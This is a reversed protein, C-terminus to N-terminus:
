RGHNEHYGFEVKAANYAKAAENEDDFYGLHKEKGQHNIRARFKGKHFDVGQLKVKANSRRKQNRANDKRTVERLNDIRNDERDGNIHDIESPWVGHTMFWVLRHIRIRRGLLRISRYGHDCKSGKQWEFSINRTQESTKRIWKVTGNTTDVELYKLVDDKTM